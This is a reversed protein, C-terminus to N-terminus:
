PKIIEAAQLIGKATRSVWEAATSFNRYQVGESVGPFTVAAYGTDLGPAMAVHKYFERTPLGGQSVFGRQFDRYKANVLKILNKDGLAAAQKEVDRIQKAREEFVDIAGALASTDLEEGSAEINDVLDEYYARLEIAYNPLDFPLIDDDLLHFALLSLYQGMAAHLHFGPDGFTSMWHYTDYNSHYHWVPDTPGAGSGVDLSSIGSHLFATFDSGSGLVEIHGSSADQWADYLSRNFGGFNPHIVKKMLETGINHLEPTAGVGPRPGSVAVDINLYAIATEKLWNVHEEVWETSGLLGYEEADWSALVINRKPKWGTDMLKKFAKTLEVLIASGSNPDGTGGIMWTDRHNGIILTEDSNTGNIYGIVNWIPTIKESMLNDLSLRVGPAPGTRYEAELVGKWGTRNVEEATLGYGDLARLLPQAAQYSLPLSPISPLVSSTDARPAGEVSPYGPTTPDGPYTSLFLVSGKQVANPHRAPGHPYAEVGNAVTLNGDDAPDTFIIAGIMGHDQANKVKLGRFIAGYRILAIKGELEVGLEVLREFDANTGRGVYIYEASVNASASYGHFTPIRDPRGTVDDELLPDEQINVHASTGNSYTVALAQRVPYSLYVHYENLAANFGNAAWRDRTWEAAERGLGALKVQYGYYASWDDITNSDFSNVLISERETLIPPWEENRPVIPKRHTHRPNHNFERLCASALNALPLLSSLSLQTKM